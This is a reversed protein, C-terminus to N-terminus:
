VMIVTEELWGPLNERYWEPYIMLCAVKRLCPGTLIEQQPHIYRWCSAISRIVNMKLSSSAATLGQLFSGSLQFFLGAPYMRNGPQPPLFMSVAIGHYQTNWGGLGM